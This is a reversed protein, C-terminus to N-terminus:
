TLYKYEEKADFSPCEKTSFDRHGYIEANPHFKKLLNLLDLLTSKQKEIEQDLDTIKKDM